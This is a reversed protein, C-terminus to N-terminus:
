RLLQWKNLEDDNQHSCLILWQTFNIIVSWFNRTEKEEWPTKKYISLHRFLTEDKTM